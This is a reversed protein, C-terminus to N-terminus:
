NKAFESPSCGFQKKFARSFYAPDNFDLQYCIESVSGAKQKLLDAARQLRLSRMLQGAPQEILANLKRNLQSVSMNVTEALSEPTFDQNEFNAEITKIVKELFLQDVSTATVESPKIITSTKFRSRLLKRQNILNKIRVKLERASFPKTIYDDVGIELGEIKDDFAAKATLMVIPIHSTKESKRVEICFEYGNVKPMMLDTVILDPVTEQAVQMGIEGNEAERIQYNDELQERIYARVDNNDEVILVIERNDSVPLGPESLSEKIDVIKNEPHLGAVYDNNVHTLVESKIETGSETLPLRVCFVSGEGERSSVSVIGKHLEVLEKALALGIGSGEFNRTSSNDVQYFRDFINSIHEAPIGLGNDEVCIEVFLSDIKKISVKIEGNENTFKFANSVLNNFVKEMKDLDFVVPIFESESEFKLTINKTVALSEFSYFLSKLFSVLNQQVASLEMNGTELKSLDLLQNILTLLRRANRNAVHLKAKEKLEVGSSIVSEIQGLILTLPTRFEHSINAFFQSKLKDLQRLTDTEVKELKLQNRINIRNLEYRRLFYVLLFLGLGFVFFAFTTRSWPPKVILDLALGEENWVGDSNAAKVRFVYEGAPLHTYTATREGDTYFWNNNFNELKYAYRNKGPASFELAAFEFSVIDDKHTLVIQRTEEVSKTLIHPDTKYTVSKDGVKIKTLAVNPTNMNESINSPFFYNFGKIGGFFLEGSKSRYYAGTNFENSQLGDNIDYNKFTGNQPTFRSLGKNTSIWLNKQDDPLISYIVNNPLGNEETYYFFVESETDFRSLGGGTGIWLYREPFVPDACISKVLNNILSTSRVPDNNFLKFTEDEPNYRFLGYKTGLWMRLNEDQFIVPRVQEYFPPGFHYPVSYFKGNEVDDLRCLYKETAIWIKGQRDEYVTYVESQPLGNNNGPEHIYLRVNETKPHYRFLGETTAAWIHGDKSQVMSFIATNGFATPENSSKEFSRITGTKREWKYLVEGSVWVDGADDELISRVSFSTTRSPQGPKIHFVPFRNAKPDYFDIGMGTTGVWLIETNDIYVSSISNFSISQLNNPDHTFSLYTEKGVNFKMLEAPTALWLNGESDEDIGVINGWGYRFVDFRHPYYRYSRDAKNFKVLGGTMGFWLAGNGSEYISSIANESSTEVAKPNKTKIVQNTFIGSQLDFQTLGDFTGIWLQDNKDCHISFIQNSGLSNKNGAERIFRKIKFEFNDSNVRVRFLGDGSTAVWINGQSDEDIAKIEFTNRLSLGDKGLDIRHFIDKKRDYVNIGRDFTGVWILGRSDEFLSSIYNASLTTSDFPNHQYILFDYGDYKNLGDKTGFWMFGRSDKMIAFVANQSLGDNITLHKFNIVQSNSKFFVSTLVVVALSMISFHSKSILSLQIIFKM